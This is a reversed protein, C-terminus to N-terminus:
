RRFYKLEIYRMFYEPNIPEGLSKEILIKPPYTRGYSHIKVRMYETIRAFDGSAILDELKAVERELSFKLQAALLNGITYTPFYGISAFSWHIDQLVGESASRPRVGLLEEMMSDWIAPLESVKIEGRMLQREINYRLYIHLNYTIEDADVRILSPRVTNFYKFLEEVSYAKTFGLHSDMLPKIKEIFAPSRGLVNEWFRSQSEHVGLSAGGELPTMALSESVGMDYLAHGLEHITSFLTRKFDKGEYRTTIRVDWISPGITFPHASTDLRGKKWPFGLLSLVERNLREAGSVDYSVEELDHHTPFYGDSLVKDLAKKTFPVLPAFMNSVDRDTLGEEYYDLMADYPHEKYGLHEAEERRLEFLRSLYPEFASFNGSRKAERWVVTAESSTKVLEYQLKEPVKTLKEIERGLVRLVGAEYDNLGERGSLREVLPAIDSLLLRRYLLSLEAMAVSRAKIGEEPMYTERDWSLISGAHRISWLLRYKELIEKVGEHQFM